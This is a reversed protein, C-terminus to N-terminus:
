RMLKRSAAGALGMVATGLLVLSGPEPAPQIGVDGLIQFSESKVGFGANDVAKSPCGPSTCGIGNNIDWGVPDGNQSTAHFINLWLMGLPLARGGSFTITELCVAKGASNTSCNSQTVASSAGLVMTGTRGAGTWVEFSVNQLVDGPQLWAGFTLGLFTPSGGSVKFSDFVQPGSNINFTGITGNIAGNDWIVSAAAPLALVAACCIAAFCLVSRTRTM